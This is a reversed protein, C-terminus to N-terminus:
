RARSVAPRACYAGPRGEPRCQQRGLMSRHCPGPALLCTFSREIELHRDESLLLGHECALALKPWRLPETWELEDWEVRGRDSTTLM